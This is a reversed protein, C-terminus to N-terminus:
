AVAPIRETSEASISDAQITSYVERDILDQVLQQAWLARFTHGTKGVRVCRILPNDAPPLQRDTTMEEILPEGEAFVLTVRTQFRKVQHWAQALAATPIQTGRGLHLLSRLAVRAAQKFRELQIEGKVLRRWYGLDAYGAGVRKALRRPEIDPDWFLLRPNLLVASRIAPDHILSQFAAFAGSCLGVAIFRRCHLQLRMADMVLNLQKVLDDGHLSAISAPEEGDSEGVRHFDIRASPIGHAALRRAADVWMRNPGIHRVGGANMFLLGWDSQTSCEAPQALISFLSDGKYALPLVTELVNEEVLCSQVNRFKERLISDGTEQAETKLQLFELITKETTPSFPIPEHPAALIDQYGMGAELAIRCGAKELSQVLKNDHPFNDRTLLLVSLDTLPALNAFAFADLDKETKPSLLFGAVELGDVPQSPATEGEALETVELNRFARLERLLVRGTASAGWLVLSEVQTGASAAAVALMGGFRVGVISVAQVGSAAKLEAVADQVSQIWAGLLKHDLASGSSDGTGPLDFRLVPIGKAALSRALSRLPRYACIDDWGFPPVIVVGLRAPGKPVDIHGLVFHDGSRFWHHHTTV